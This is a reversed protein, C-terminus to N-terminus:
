RTVLWRSVENFPGGVGRVEITNALAETLEAETLAAQGLGGVLFFLHGMRVLLTGGGEAYSLGLTEFQFLLQRAEQETVTGKIEMDM